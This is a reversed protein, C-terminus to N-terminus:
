EGFILDTCSISVTVKKRFTTENGFTFISLKRLCVASHMMVISVAGFVVVVFLKSAPSM